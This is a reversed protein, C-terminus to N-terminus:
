EGKFLKEEMYLWRVFNSNCLAQKSRRKRLLDISEKASYGLWMMARASVIGSRNLGATCHVLVRDGIEVRDAVLSAISRIAHGDPVFMDDIPHWIHIGEFKLRSSIQRTPAHELGVLVDWQKGIKTPSGGQWLEGNAEERGLIKSPEATWSDDWDSYFSRTTAPLLNNSM